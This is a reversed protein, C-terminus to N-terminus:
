HPADKIGPSKERTGAQLGTYVFGRKDQITVREWTESILIHVDKQPAPPNNLRDSCPGYKAIKFKSIINSFM